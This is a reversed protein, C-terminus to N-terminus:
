SASAAARLWDLSLPMAMICPPIGPPMCPPPPAGAPPPPPGRHACQDFKVGDALVVLHAVGGDLRGVVDRHLDLFPFKHGDHALSVYYVQDLIKVNRTITDSFVCPLGAAQAEVGTVPFGEYLSPMVFVDMAQTLATVDPRFGLFLVSDELGLDRVKQRTEEMTEGIGALLLVADPRQRHVCAFIDILFGHNKQPTFRGVNGLVLKGSVGLQQRLRGRTEPDFAFRDLSIGNPLVTVRHQEVARAGFMWRAAYDSCALCVNASRSLPIKFLEGAARELRSRTQFGTNHSHAIRVPVGYDRACKLIYYNKPGSNMHVAQYDHHAKFFARVARRYKVLDWPRRLWIGELKYVRIGMERVKDELDYHQGDDLLLLECTIQDPDWHALLDVLLTQIGGVRMRDVFLLVKIKEQM